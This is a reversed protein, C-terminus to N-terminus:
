CYERTDGTKFVQETTQVGGKRGQGDKREADPRIDGPGEPERKEGAGGM